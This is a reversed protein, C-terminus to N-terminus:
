IAQQINSEANITQIQIYSCSLNMKGRDDGLFCDAVSGSMTVSKQGYAKLIQM